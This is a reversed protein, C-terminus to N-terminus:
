VVFIFPYDHSIFEVEKGLMMKQKYEHLYDVDTGSPIVSDTKNM